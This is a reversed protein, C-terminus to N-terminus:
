PFPAAKWLPAPPHTPNFGAFPLLNLDLRDFVVACVPWREPKPEKPAFFGMYPLLALARRIYQVMAYLISVTQRPEMRRPSTFLMFSRGAYMGRLSYTRTQRDQLDTITTAAASMWAIERVSTGSRYILGSDCLLMPFGWRM